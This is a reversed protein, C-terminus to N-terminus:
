NTVFKISDALNLLLSSSISKGIYIIEIRNAIKGRDSGSLLTVNNPLPLVIADIEGGSQVNAHRYYGNYGNATVVRSVSTTATKSEQVDMTSTSSIVVINIADGPFDSIKAQGKKVSADFSLRENKDMDTLVMVEASAPDWYQVVSNVDGKLCVDQTNSQFQGDACANFTAPVYWNEPIVFQYGFKTNHYLYNSPPNQLISVLSQASDVEGGVHYFYILLSTILLTVIILGSILALKKSPWRVRDTSEARVGDISQFLEDIDKPNWGASILNIKISERSVNQTLQAKVYDFLQTNIM